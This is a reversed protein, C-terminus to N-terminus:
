LSACEYYKLTKVGQSVKLPGASGGVKRGSAEIGFDGTHEPLISDGHLYGSKTDM